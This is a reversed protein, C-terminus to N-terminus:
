SASEASYAPPALCCTATTHLLGFRILWPLGDGSGCSSGLPRDLDEDGKPKLIDTKYESEREDEDEDHDAGDHRRWRRRSGACAERELSGDAQVNRRYKAFLRTNKFGSALDARDGCPDWVVRDRMEQRFYSTTKILGRNVISAVMELLQDGDTIITREGTGESIKGDHRRSVHISINWSGRARKGCDAARRM